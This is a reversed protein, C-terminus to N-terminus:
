ASIRAGSAFEQEIASTVRAIPQAYRQRSLRRLLEIRSQDRLPPPPPLTELSFPRSPMGDILLRLYATYKPLSMLDAPTLDGGLQVALEEADRGGVQFTLSSGVNGFM